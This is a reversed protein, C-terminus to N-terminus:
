HHGHGRGGLVVQREVTQRRNRPQHGARGVFDVVGELHDAPRRFEELVPGVQGVRHLFCQCADAVLGSAGGGRHAAHDRQRSRLGFPRVLDIQAVDRRPRHFQTLIRNAAGVQRNLQVHRRRRLENMPLPQVQQLHREVENLVGFLRERRAAGAHDAHLHGLVAIVHRQADDVITGAHRRGVGFADELREDGRLRTGLGGPQPKGDRALDGRRM